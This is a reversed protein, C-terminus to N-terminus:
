TPRMNVWTSGFSGFFPFLLFNSYFAPYKSPRRGIKPSHQGMKPSHQGIKLAIHAWRPAINAWRPAINAWRPAINAWRAAINAWSPAINAWRSTWTPGDQPSHQRKKLDMNACTSGDQAVLESFHSFIRLACFVTFRPLKQPSKPPPPPRRCPRRGTEGVSLLSSGYPLSM